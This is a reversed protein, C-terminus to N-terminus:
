TSIGSSGPVGIPVGTAEAAAGAGVAPENVVSVELAVAVGDGVSEAGGPASEVGAVGASGVGVVAIELEDTVLVCTLAAPELSRAGTVVVFTLRFCVAGAAASEL